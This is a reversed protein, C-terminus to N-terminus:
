KRLIKIFEDINKEFDGYGDLGEHWTDLAPFITLIQTSNVLTCIADIEEQNELILHIPKFSEPNTEHVKM